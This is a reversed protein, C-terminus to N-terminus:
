TEEEEDFHTGGIQRSAGRFLAVIRGDGGTVTVDTIGSRGTLSVERADATLTEGGKGPSLYSITNHQAVAVRNHSNCAFAFASDALTFIVGGHCIGHGNLHDDRVVLSLRAHGPGVTELRLGTWKSARDDAWMAEASRRAREEPTM